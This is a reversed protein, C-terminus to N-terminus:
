RSGRLALGMAVDWQGRRGAPNAQTLWRFPDGLVCELDLAAHLTEALAPTAEGGGLVMRTLPQGRFTVSHYRVCMSLEGILQEIVPRVASTISQKLEVDQRDARRDGHHRRLSIADDLGVQLCTSLAQDMQAGGIDIYKILLVKTDQAVVVVTRKAGVHVLMFREQSDQERRFQQAYCRLLAIPEADVGVPRLGAAELIALKDDLVSQRVALLLVESRLSNGQRVDTTPIYRLETEEIPWPVRGAAEQFVRQALQDASSKPVRINQVFLEEGSLCLVANRGHFGRGERGVRLAAIKADRGVPQGSKETDGALDWRVAEVLQKRGADVQLLKVSRSGLDVSIPGCTSYRFLSPFKPTIQIANLPMTQQRNTILARRRRM